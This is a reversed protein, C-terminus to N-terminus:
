EPMALQMKFQAIRLGLEILEQETADRKISNARHSVIAVNGRVYGRSPILKDLSPSNPFPKGHTGIGTQLEWRLPVQSYPCLTPAISRLYEMDLDFPLGKEKARRRANNLMARLQHHMSNARQLEVRRGSNSYKHEHQSRCIKCASQFGSARARNRHFETLPKLVGCKTCQKTGEM